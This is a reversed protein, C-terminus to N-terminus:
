LRVEKVQRIEQGYMHEGFEQFREPSDTTCFLRRGSTGLAAREEPHQDLFQALEKWMARASTVITVDEGMVEKVIHELAPYHTCGLILTDVQAKKMPDLYRALVLRCEETHMWGEEIFPVLLAASRSTVSANSHEGIHNEFAGSLITSKTAILGIRGQETLEMADRATPILVGMVHRDPYRALLEQMNTSPLARASATNCAVIVVKCDEERFLYEVAETTFTAIAGESRGGYPARAQDGLYVYNYSPFRKVLEKMVTLGGLGSDFVGINM